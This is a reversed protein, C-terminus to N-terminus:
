KRELMIRFASRLEQESLYGSHADLVKCNRDFIIQTPVANINLARSLESHREIDIHVFAVTDKFDKELVRWTPEMLRCPTCWSAEFDVISFLGKKPCFTAQLPNQAAAAPLAAALALVSLASLFAKRM